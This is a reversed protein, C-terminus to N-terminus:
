LKEEFFPLFCIKVMTSNIENLNVEFLWSFFTSRIQSSYEYLVSPITFTYITLPKFLVFGKTSFSVTITYFTSSNQKILLISNYKM